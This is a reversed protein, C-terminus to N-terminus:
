GYFRVRSNYHCQMTTATGVGIVHFSNDRTDAVTGGDAVFNVPIRGKWKLRFRGDCYSTCVTNGADTVPAGVVPQIAVEAFALVKFRGYYQLVRHPLEVGGGADTYVDEANLQTANTQTDCVLAIVARESNTTNNQGTVVAQTIRGNVDIDTVVVRNGDRETADSGQIPAFICKNDAPDLEGGAWGSTLSIDHIEDDFHKKEAGLMGGIRANQARLYRMRASRRFASAARPSRRSRLPRRAAAM